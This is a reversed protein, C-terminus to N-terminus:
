DIESSDSLPFLRIDYFHTDDQLGGATSKNFSVPDLLFMRIIIHKSIIALIPRPVQYAINSARINTRSRYRVVDGFCEAPM